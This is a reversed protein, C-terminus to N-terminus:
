PSQAGLIAVPIFVDEHQVFSGAVSARITPRGSQRPGAQCARALENRERGPWTSDRRPHCMPASSIEREAPVFCGTDTMVVGALHKSLLSCRM